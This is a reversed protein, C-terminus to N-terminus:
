GGVVLASVGYHVAALVAKGILLAVVVLMLATSERVKAGSPAVRKSVAELVCDVLRTGAVDFAVVWRSAWVRRLLRVVVFFLVVDAATMLLGLLPLVLMLCWGM